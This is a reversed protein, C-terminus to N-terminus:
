VNIRAQRQEEQLMVFISGDEIISEVVARENPQFMGTLIEVGMAIGLAAIDEEVWMLASTGVPTKIQNAARALRLREGLIRIAPSNILKDEVAKDYGWPIHRFRNIFSENMQSMGRYNGDNYTGVIWLDPDGIVADPMFQGNKFVPKNRNIFHHRHDALPNLSITVREPMANVEDLYLIGGVQAALDVIGPLWVLSERGTTPDTYSTTQGFLDYDTVGSSGSLTFIPLPKPLGRMEAWKVALVEVLFTKGSQTDGKLMVNAPRDQNRERYVDTTFTLLFEVDTMGNAMQRNIYRKVKARSPRLHDLRPDMPDTIPNSIYRGVAANDNVDVLPATTVTEEAPVPAVYVPAAPVVEDM